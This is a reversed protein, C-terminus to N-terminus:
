PRWDPGGADCFSAVACRIYRAAARLEVEAAPHFRSEILARLLREREDEPLALADALLRHPTAAM